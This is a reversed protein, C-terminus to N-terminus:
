PQATQELKNKEARKKEEKAALEALAAAAAACVAFIGGILLQGIRERNM